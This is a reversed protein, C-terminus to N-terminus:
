TYISHSVSQGHLWCMDLREAFKMMAERSGIARNFSKEVEPVFRLWKQSDMNLRALIPPANGPIFGSKENKIARGTWDILQLYDKISFALANEGEKLDVGTNFQYLNPAKRQGTQQNSKNHSNKKPRGVGRSALENLRTQISTFDSDEPLKAVGARIPNLDVYVMCALVAAEDLLAQSKFRGEWFRGKCDDEENAMRAISENLVRMFWSIDCLRERWEDAYEAVKDIEAKSTAEKSVYRAVLANGAFLSTWREIVEDMSWNACSEVDVRLVVHYHNSMVAYACVDIAFVDALFALKDVVWAKRHDYKRGTLSDEGFLYARRVCRAMCHYYVTDDLSIIQDRARTM